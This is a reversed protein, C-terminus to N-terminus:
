LIVADPLNQGILPLRWHLARQCFNNCSNTQCYTNHPPGSTRVLFLWDTEPCDVRTGGHLRQITVRPIRCWCYTGGAIMQTSSSSCFGEVHSFDFSLALNSGSQFTTTLRAIMCPHLPFSSWSAHGAANATLVRHAGGAGPAPWSAGAVGQPGQAGEAGQPGQISATAVDVWETGAITRRLIQGTEGGLVPASEAACEYGPPCVMCVGAAQAHQSLLLMLMLSVGSSLPTWHRSNNRQETLKM